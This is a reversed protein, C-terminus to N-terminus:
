RQCLQAAIQHKCITHRYRWDECSCEGQKVLSLTHHEPNWVVAGQPILRVQLPELAVRNYRSLFLMAQNKDVFVTAKNTKINLGVNTIDVALIQHNKIGRIELFCCWVKAFEAKSIMRSWRGTSTIYVLRPTNGSGITDINEIKILQSILPLIKPTKPDVLPSSYFGLQSNVATAIASKSM